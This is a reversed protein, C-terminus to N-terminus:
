GGSALHDRLYTANRVAFAEWDNNLYVFAEAERRWAAIRRRWTDLEARSYNGRRGRKGYHLRVFTWDATLERAQFPWKPHDGITLAAGHSRLLEMVEAVYWSPHRFEFTHRGAPLQELAAALRDDDRQFNGPLQWLMPGMKPTERLPELPELLRELYVGLEKLRKIHTLYRSSKISFVFGPPTQAVWNAVTKRKPLRYFTANVEVTDFLTAYHELWRSAPLKEPYVTGRWDKYNWGSCGIRVPKM